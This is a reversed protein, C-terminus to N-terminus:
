QYRRRYDNIMEDTVDNDYCLPSAGGPRSYASRGGCRRGGRDRNYPCPCSGSYGSISQQIQIRRIEADSLSEQQSSRADTETSTDIATIRKVFDEIGNLSKYKDRYLTELYKRCDKTRPVDRQISCKAFAEMSSDLKDQSFYSLGMYYYNEAKESNVYHDWDSRSTQPPREAAEFGEIARETYQVAKGWQERDAYLKALPSLIQYCDKPALEACAKEGYELQGEENKLQGYSSALVFALGANPKRAYVKEGYATAIDFRQLQYAAIATMYLTNLEDPRLSLLKEGASFVKGSQGQNQYEQMLELYTGIAYEVLASRPNAEIFAVIASERNAPDASIASEYAASEEPTVGGQGLIPSLVLAWLLSLFLFLRLTVM